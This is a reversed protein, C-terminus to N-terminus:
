SENVGTSLVFEEGKPLTYPGAESLRMKSMTM